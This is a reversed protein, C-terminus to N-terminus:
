GYADLNNVIHDGNVDAVDKLLIADKLDLHM